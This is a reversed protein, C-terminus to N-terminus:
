RRGHEMVGSAFCIELDACAPLCASLCPPLSTPLSPLLSPPLCATLRVGQRCRAVGNGHSARATRPTHRNSSNLFPHIPFLHSAFAFTSSPSPSHYFTPLICLRIHIGQLLRWSTCSQCCKEFLKCCSPHFKRIFFVWFGRIQARFESLLKELVLMKELIGNTAKM